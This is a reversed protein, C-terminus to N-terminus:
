AQAQPTGAWSFSMDGAVIHISSEWELIYLTYSLADTPFRASLKPPLIGPETRWYRFWVSGRVGVIRENEPQEIHCLLVNSFSIVADRYAFQTPPPNDPLGTLIEVCITLAGIEYNHTISRLKADHLGNPLQEDLEELTM